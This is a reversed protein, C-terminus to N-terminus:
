QDEEMSSIKESEQATLDIKDGQEVQEKVGRDIKTGPVRVPIASSVSPASKEEVRDEEDEWISTGFTTDSNYTLRRGKDNDDSSMLGRRSRHHRFGFELSDRIFAQEDEDLLQFQENLELLSMNPLISERRHPTTQRQTHSEELPDYVESLSHQDHDKAPTPSTHRFGPM